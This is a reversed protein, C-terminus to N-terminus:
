VKQGASMPSRTLNAQALCSRKTVDRIPDTSHAIVAKRQDGGLPEFTSMVVDSIKHFKETM